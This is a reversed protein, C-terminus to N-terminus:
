DQLIFIFFCVCVCMNVITMSLNCHLTAYHVATITYNIATQGNIPQSSCVYAVYLCVRILNWKMNHLLWARMRSWNLNNFVVVFFLYYFLLAGESQLQQQQHLTFAMAPVHTGYMYMHILCIYCWTCDGGCKRLMKKKNKYTKHVM